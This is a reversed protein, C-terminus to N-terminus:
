AVARFIEYGGIGPVGDLKWDFRAAELEGDALAASGGACRSGAGRTAPGEEGDGWLELTARVQRGAGDYETSLLPEAFSSVAGDAGVRVAGLTETGHHDVATPRLAFLLLLSRDELVAWTTRLAAQDAEGSIQWSVGYAEFGDPIGEPANAIEGSAGIAQVRLGREEGTDFALQGTHAALGLILGPECEGASVRLVGEGRAATADALSLVQEGSAIVASASDGESLAVAGYLGADADAFALLREIM